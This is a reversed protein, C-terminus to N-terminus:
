PYPFAPEVWTGYAGEYFSCRTEGRTYRIAARPRVAVTAMAATRSNWRVETQEGMKLAGDVEIGLYRVPNELKNHGLLLQVAGLNKIRRHILSARTRHM